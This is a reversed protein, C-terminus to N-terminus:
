KSTAVGAIPTCVKFEPFKLGTHRTHSMSKFYPYVPATIAAALNHDSTTNPLIYKLQVM